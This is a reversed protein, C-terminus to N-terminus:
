SLDMAYINNRYCYLEVEDFSQEDYNFELYELILKILDVPNTFEKNFM